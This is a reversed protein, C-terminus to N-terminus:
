SEIEAKFNSYHLGKPKFFSEDHGNLRKILIAAGGAKVAYTASGDTFIQAWALTPYKDEMIEMTLGRLVKQGADKREFCSVSTRISTADM